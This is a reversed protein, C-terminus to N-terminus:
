LATCLMPTTGRGNRFVSGPSAPPLIPTGYTRRPVITTGYTCRSFSRRADPEWRPFYLGPKRPFYAGSERVFYSKRQLCRGQFYCGEAVESRGTLGQYRLFDFWDCAVIAIQAFISGSCNCNKTKIKKAKVPARKVITRWM